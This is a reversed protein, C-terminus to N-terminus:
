LILRYQPDQILPARPGMSRDPSQNIIIPIGVKPEAVFSIQIRKHVHWTGAASLLGIALVRRCLLGTVAGASPRSALQYKLLVEDSITKQKAM